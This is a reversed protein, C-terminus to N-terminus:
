RRSKKQNLCSNEIAIKSMDVDALDEHYGTPQEGRLALEIRLAECSVCGPIPQGCEKNMWIRNKLEEISWNRTIDLEWQYLVTKKNTAFM